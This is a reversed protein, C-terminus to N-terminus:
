KVKKENKRPSIKLLTERTKKNIKKVDKKFKNEIINNLKLLKQYEDILVDLDKQNELEEIMKEALNTLEEITLSDYNNPMNKDKM